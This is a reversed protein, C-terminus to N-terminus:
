LPKRGGVHSHVRPWHDVVLTVVESPGHVDGRSDCSLCRLVLDEHALIEDALDLGIPELQSFHALEVQLADRLGDDDVLRHPAVGALPKAAATPGALSWDGPVRLPPRRSRRAARCSLSM